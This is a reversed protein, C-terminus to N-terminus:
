KQMAGILIAPNRMAELPMFYVKNNSTSMKDMIKLARQTIFANSVVSSLKEEVLVQTEAEKLDVQQQKTAVELAGEAKKLSVLKENDAETIAIEREKAKIQAKLVIEPPQLDALGIYLPSIPTGKLKLKIADSLEQGVTQRNMM